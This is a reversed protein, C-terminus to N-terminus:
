VTASSDKEQSILGPRNHLFSPSLGSTYLVTSYRVSLFSSECHRPPTTCASFPLTQRGRTNPHIKTFSSYNNTTTQSDRHISPTQPPLNRTTHIARLSFHSKTSNEPITSTPPKSQHQKKPTNYTQTTRAQTKTLLLRPAGYNHHFWSVAKQIIM